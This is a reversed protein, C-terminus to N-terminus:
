AAGMVSFIATASRPDLENRRTTKVAARRSTSACRRSRRPRACRRPGPRSRRAPRPAPHRARLRRDLDEGVEARGAADLGVVDSATAVERSGRRTSSRRLEELAGLRGAAQAHAHEAALLLRAVAVQRRDVRRRQGVADISSMPPPEICSTCTTPRWERSSSEQRRPATRMVSRKRAPSPGALGLCIRSSRACTAALSSRAATAPGSRRRAQDADAARDAVQGGRRLAVEVHGLEADLAEDDRALLEVAEDLSSAARVGASRPLNGPMLGDRPSRM